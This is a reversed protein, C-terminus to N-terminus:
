DRWPDRPPLGRGDLFGLDRLRHDSLREPELVASRRLMLRRLFRLRSGATPRNPATQILQGYPRDSSQSANSPCAFSQMSQPAYCTM